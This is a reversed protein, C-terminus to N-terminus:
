NNDNNPQLIRISQGKQWLRVTGDASGTVVWLTGKEDDSNNNNNKWEIVYQCSHIYSAHGVYEQLVTQSVLGFERVHGTSSGTLIRAADRSLCVCTVAASSDFAQYHRL